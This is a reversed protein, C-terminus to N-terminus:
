IYSSISNKAMLYMYVNLIDFEDIANYDASFDYVNGQFSVEGLNWLM